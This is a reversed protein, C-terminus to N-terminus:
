KKDRYRREVILEHPKPYLSFMNGSPALDVQRGLPIKWKFRQMLAAFLLLLEPKAVAEGMCVRTGASFPLWNKPKPGLKGDTDLFREPIFHDANKWVTPDHHLAWHNVLVMTNSPVDYGGVSTDCRTKRAVGAPVVSSLRMSERFVAETYGLDPRHFLKPLDHPGVIRDIEKQVKSQIDPFAVMHLIAYQITPRTAEIGAVFINELIHFIHGNTLKVDNESHKDNETDRRALILSDTFDRIHDIDITSEHEQIKSMFLDKLESMFNKTWKMNSTEWVYHLGPIQDQLLSLVNHLRHGEDVMDIIWKVEPDMLKHAGGFCIGILINGMMLEIYRNPNIPTVATNLEESILDIALHIREELAHGLM